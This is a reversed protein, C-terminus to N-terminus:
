LTVHCLVANDSVKVWGAGSRAFQTVEVSCNDSAHRALTCAILGDGQEYWLRHVSAV